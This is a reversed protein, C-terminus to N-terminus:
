GVWTQINVGQEQLILVKKVHASLDDADHKDNAQRFVDSAFNMFKSAKSKPPFKGTSRKWYAVIRAMAVTRRVDQPRGNITSAGPQNALTILRDLQGEFERLFDRNQDKPGGQDYMEGWKPAGISQEFAVFGEQLALRLQYAARFIARTAENQERAPVPNPMSLVASVESILTQHELTDMM